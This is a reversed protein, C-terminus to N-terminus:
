RSTLALLTKVLKQTPTTAQLAHGFEGEECAEAAGIWQTGATLKGQRGPEDHAVNVCIAVQGVVM